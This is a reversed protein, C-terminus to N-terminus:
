YCGRARLMAPVTRLMITLDLSLSKSAAYRRDLQVREAYSIDNRGSVQWLGTLGPRVSCYDAFHLGYREIEAPVIPRPGVISMHGVLVNFLQPLEDLSSKRLIGGTPTIRPDVRLKFDKAWEARADPDQELLRTLMESANVHMTRIKLCPFMAGARGVRQQVFLLPGPSTVQMLIAILLLLPLFIIIAVGAIVVDALRFFARDLKGHAVGFRSSLQDHGPLHSLPREIGTGAVWPDATNEVPSGDLLYTEDFCSSRATSNENM